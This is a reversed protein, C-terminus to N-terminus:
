DNSDRGMPLKAGFGFAPYLNDSDYNELISLVSHIADTYNNRRSVPDLYHLSLHDTPVKNSMTFDIAVHVQIECGGIIYDLFNVKTEIACGSFKLM